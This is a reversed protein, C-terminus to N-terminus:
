LDAMVKAMDLPASPQVSAVDFTLDNAAPAASSAAAQAAPATQTAPATQAIAAGTVLFLGVFLSLGFWSRSHLSM